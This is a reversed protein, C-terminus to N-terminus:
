YCRHLRRFLVGITGEMCVGHNVFKLLCENVYVKQVRRFVYFYYNINYGRVSYM